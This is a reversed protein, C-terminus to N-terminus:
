SERKRRYRTARAAGVSYVVGKEMLANLERIVTWKSEGIEQVLDAVALEEHNDLLNLLRLQRQTLAPAHNAPAKTTMARSEVSRAFVRVIFSHGQDILEPPRHGNAQLTDFVTDLGLGFREIVGAQYLLQALTPNRSLQRERIEQVRVGAPLGGPSIWEIRNTFVQIRVVSGDISWDRHCVANVTLERLVIYPYADFQVQTVGHEESVLTAHDTRAWLLDVTREIVTFINGRISQQLRVSTSYSQDGTFEAVDIGHHILSREPHPAFALAGAVTPRLVNGTEVAGGNARLFGQWDTPGNYRRREMATSIHRQIHAIDLDLIHMTPVPQRDFPQHATSPMQVVPTHGDRLILANLVEAYREPSIPKSLTITAGHRQAESLATADDSIVIIPLSPAAVHIRELVICGDLRPLFWDLIIAHLTPLHQLALELGREGDVAFLLDWAPDHRLGARILSLAVDNDDIILIKPM